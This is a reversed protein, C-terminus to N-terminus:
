IQGAEGQQNPCFEIRLNLTFEAPAPHVGSGCARRLGAVGAYLMSVCRCSTQGRNQEDDAAPGFQMRPRSIM